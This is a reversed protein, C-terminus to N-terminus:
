RNRYVLTSMTAIYTLTSTPHNSYVDTNVSRPQWAPRCSAGTAVAATLLLTVHVAVARAAVLATTVGAVVSLDTRSGVTVGSSGGRSLSEPTATTGGVNSARGSFEM